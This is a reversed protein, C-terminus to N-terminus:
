AAKKRRKWTHKPMVIPGRVKQPPADEPTITPADDPRQPPNMSVPRGNIADRRQREDLQEWVMPIFAPPIM